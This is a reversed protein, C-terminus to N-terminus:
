SSPVALANDVAEYWGEFLGGIVLRVFCVRTRLEFPCFWLVLFLLPGVDAFIELFVVHVIPLYETMDDSGLPFLPPVVIEDADRILLLKKM